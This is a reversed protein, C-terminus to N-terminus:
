VLNLNIIRKYVLSSQGFNILIGLKKNTAKLYNKLQKNFSETLYSVAKIELIIDNFCIFDAKFNKNLKIDNYYLDLKKEREFPLKEKQFKLELIENYVSELFGSEMDRHIEMCVGIIRCSEEKYILPKNM